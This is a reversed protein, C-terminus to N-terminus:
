APIKLDYGSGFLVPVPAAQAAEFVAAVEADTPLEEELAFAGPFEPRTHEMIVRWSPAQPDCPYVIWARDCAFIELAAKLVDSMMPDLEDAGQIARNIRDM